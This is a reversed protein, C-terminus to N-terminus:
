FCNRFVSEFKRESEFSETDCYINRNISEVAIYINTVKIVNQIKRISLNEYTPNMNNVGKERQRGGGM